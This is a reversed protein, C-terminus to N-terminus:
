FRDTFIFWGLLVFLLLTFIMMTGTGFQRGIIVGVFVLIILLIITLPSWILRRKARQKNVETSKEEITKIDNIAIGLEQAKKVLVDWGDRTYYDKGCNLLEITKDITIGGKFYYKELDKKSLKVDLM